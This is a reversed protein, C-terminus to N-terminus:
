GEEVQRKLRVLSEEWLPTFREFWGHYLRALADGDIRYRWERGVEEARILGAERLVRLHRSVAPRSISSFRGAIEGATCEGRARLLDLVARRTPDALAAFGNDTGNAKSM